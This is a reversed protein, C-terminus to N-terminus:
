SKHGCQNQRGGGHSAQALTYCAAHEFSAGDLAPATTHPQCPSTGDGGVHALCGEDADEQVM